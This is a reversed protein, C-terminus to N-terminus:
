SILHNYLETDLPRKLYLDMITVPTMVEGNTDPKRTLQPSGTGRLHGIYYYRGENSEQRRMIFVPIFHTNEWDQSDSGQQMWVFERSKPTHRNKSYWHIEQNNLFRDNYQSSAYKIFIPMTGTTEDLFYGGVNQGNIEKEWGLLREVDALTYKQEYVFGREPERGSKDLNAFIDRCNLLGTRLTDAFFVRFTRNASLMRRFPENLGVGGDDSTTVLPTNGFRTRNTATFYSCDLVRVASDLQNRDLNTHPFRQAILDALEGRTAPKAPEWTSPNDKNLTETEFGCLRDLIVLEHPRLGPLLLVTAMKMIQTETRDVPEMQDLFSEHTGRSLSQERSHVFTLYDGKRSALTLPLSPDHDYVDMLMPIRGLEFRLQRYQESLKRMESWDTMDLSRLVRKKAIPDFSISSLGITHRQLNKRARDRDGTNGYLAVPILYNNTYNGIFDIVIVSDKHPFKRLGRGLQQTFVISSETNRLMVIQNIAPIDIGENFLDVTFIYDLEGKQLDEVAQEREKHPTSGTVAKTRYNRNEAQQNVAQNFLESLRQAEEQRSCFVLGTVQQHYPSYKQLIDIIYRVRGPTALQGIEYALQGAQDATLGAAPIIGAHQEHETTFSNTSSVPSDEEDEDSGLYESVGYYHFPCLMDEDLARQLRIEYAVNYGFLQFINIGDTREPTATMGLMFDAQDFHDIIRQYSGAGAHHVEDILIYDFTDPRFEKLVETRSMTQVTAFVYRRDFEKSHGSFLGLDTEDCGLIKRFSRMSNNLIQEQHAIYLMRQPRAQQVDFASLYTKGTGTASIIIARHEGRERLTQLNKLAEKQMANPIVTENERIAILERRPPAYKKFDEEYARIWDDTLPISEQIQADIEEKVQHVLEGSALSSVKLNWERQTGLAQQTLNSSGVYLNYCTQGDSMRRTFIYGKPHFPQDWVPHPHAETGVEDSRWIRVDVGAIDKLRLLDWFAKPDNFYNKTSTIIRGNGDGKSDFRDKFEQLLTRIAEASVFAVSIDFNDSLSLEQSLAMDMTNGHRNAILQPAYTGLGDTSTNTQLLGPEVLGTVVDELLSTSDPNLSAQLTLNTGPQTTDSIPTETQKIGAQEQHGNSPM